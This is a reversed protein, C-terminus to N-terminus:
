QSKKRAVPKASKAKVAKISPNAVVKIKIVSPPQPRADFVSYSASDASFDSKGGSQDTATMKVFGDGIPLAQTVQYINTDEIANWTTIGVRTTDGRTESVFYADYSVVDLDPSPRWSLEITSGVPITVRGDAPTCDIMSVGGFLWLVITIAIMSIRSKM